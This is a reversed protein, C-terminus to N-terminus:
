APHCVQRRGLMAHEGQGLSALRTRGPGDNAVTESTAAPRPQAGSDESYLTQLHRPVLAQERGDDSGALAGKGRMAGGGLQVPYRSEGAVPHLESHWAPRTRRTAPNPNMEGSHERRMM